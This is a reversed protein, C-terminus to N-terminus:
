LEIDAFGLLKTIKYQQVNTHSKIMIEDFCTCNLRSTWPFTEELHEQSIVIVLVPRVYSCYTSGSLRSSLCGSFM